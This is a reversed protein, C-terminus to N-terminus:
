KQSGCKALAQRLEALLDRAKEIGKPKYRWPDGRTYAWVKCEEAEMFDVLAVLRDHFDVAAQHKHCLKVGVDDLTPSYHGRELLCEDITMPRCGCPESM